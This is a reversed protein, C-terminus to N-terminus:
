NVWVREFILQSGDINTYELRVFGELFSFWSKLYTIGLESKAESKVIYVELTGIETKIDTKDTIEYSIINKIAGKWTVWRKDSWYSGIVLEGSWKNGIEYPSQIFPFPNLELIKFLFERPPHMWVNKFNEICGTKEGGIILKNNEGIYDINIITQNYDSGFTNSFPEPIIKIQVVTSDNTNIKKTFEWDLDKGEQITVEKISFLMTDNKHIYSYKYMFERENIFVENDVSYNLFHSLSDIKKEIYIGDNFFVEPNIKNNVQPLSNPTKSSIEEKEQPINKCSYFFLIALM